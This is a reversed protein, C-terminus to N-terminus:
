APRWEVGQGRRSLCLEMCARVAAKGMGDENGSCSKTNAGQLLPRMVAEPSRSGLVVGGGKMQSEQRREVIKWVRAVETHDLINFADKTVELPHKRESNSQPVKRFSVLPIKM